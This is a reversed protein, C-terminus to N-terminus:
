RRDLKPPNFEMRTLELYDPDTMLSMAAAEINRPDDPDMGSNMLKMRAFLVLHDHAIRAYPCRYDFTVAFSRPVTPEVRRAGQGNGNM